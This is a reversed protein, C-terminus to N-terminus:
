PMIGLLKIFRQVLFSLIKNEDYLYENAFLEVDKTKDIKPNYIGPQAAVQLLLSM